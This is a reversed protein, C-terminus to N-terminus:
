LDELRARWHAAEDPEVWAEYFRVIRDLARRKLRAFERPPSMGEFGEILLPEAAEFNQQGALSEGLLSTLDARLWPALRARPSLEIAERVLTEAEGHADNIM